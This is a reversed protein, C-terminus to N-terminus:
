RAAMHVFQALTGFAVILLFIFLVILVVIIIQRYRGGVRPPDPIYDVLTVDDLHNLSYM